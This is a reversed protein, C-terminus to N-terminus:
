DRDRGADISRFPVILMALLVRAGAVTLRAPTLSTRGSHRPRERVPVELVELGNRKLFLRLEPEPYGTPHHESLMRLARPGFACFGTTPDTVPAGTMRTLCAALMTRITHGARLRPAPDLSRHFRSGLVVDARGTALPEVLRAIDDARHQGDGDLRVVADYRLRRAYRLGARMASGIGMREPFTLWRVDLTELVSVTTDSSGDDVVLVDLSPCWTRLDAIVSPLSAAENHAPIVGLIRAGPRLGTPRSAPTPREPELTPRPTMSDEPLAPRRAIRRATWRAAAAVWVVDRLLHFVPFLLGAADGFRRSARAGAVLRELALGSLLALAAFAPWQWAGGALGTVGAAAGCVLALAMIAPHAMMALPSVADGGVRSPHKAVLDLRGYGLGYQQTAYGVIGARWHHRSRADRCFVLRHGAARLRYSMDNDYGYGLSEDFLGADLLAERRYVSNGTCVHDTDRGPIGAYRWELDLGMVRASLRADRASRYYGQAAAVTPDAMAALLRRLWGADVIVDQDIQAIFPHRAARVGLNIAAAAGRGHGELVRVGHTEALQVLIRASDDTSGDDVVILEMPMDSADRHIADIAERLWMAGNRVPMVVSVGPSPVPVAATAKSPAGLVRRYLGEVAAAVAASSFRDRVETASSAAEARWRDPSALIQGIASSLAQPDGLPVVLGGGVSRIVEGCGSDDAVIVPTGSLLAELPVLGFIEHESPYVVVDADALAELREAGRLLGTFVTRAALGLTAALARTEGASGMDNGAVVLQAAPLDLRAFARVLVDLRKRPTLKGLFLVVPEHGLRFRARFAGRPSPHSFEDLDLANPITAISSADVGLHQLQAREADAVAIVAAADQLMRRGAVADVLAKAAFLRELRPATGNPALIYPVGARRLHRAAILGPLNRCAHLHAIDFDRAHDRLYANLGVPAFAQWHYAAHNSLNPFVRVTVGDDTVRPPWPALRSRRDPRDLRADADRADTTCVTVRHGARALQRTLASALRPIGGYAWADASYPTVHLIRLPRM